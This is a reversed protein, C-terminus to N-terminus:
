STGMNTYGIPKANYLDFYIMVDGVKVIWAPILETEEGEVLRPKAYGEEVYEILNSVTEFLVEEEMTNFVYGEDTLISYIYKYNSALMNVASYAERATVSSNMEIENNDIEILNRKYYTTQNGIVEIVIAESNEYYVNKGDIEMGFVFRYGKNNEGEIITAQKVYPVTEAGEYTEWGGHSGVYELALELAEFYDIQNGTSNEKEKYEIGMNKTVTLVKEGYGYMYIVSGKSEEIRRVFDFSEGFFSQALKRINETEWIEIEPDYSLEALKSNLSLPMVTQNGTGVLTGISYNIVYGGEEISSILDDLLQIHEKSDSILRFYTDNVSDYIFMSEPSGTSFSISAVHEIGSFEEGKPIEYLKCFSDFPINYHFNFKISRFEMVQTYQEKTIKEVVVTEKEGFQNFAQICQNWAEHKEYHITTYEGGGLNAVTNLPKTVDQSSPIDIEGEQESIIETLNLSNIMPNEWFFYLLLMTSFFLVVILVNKITEIKKPKGM